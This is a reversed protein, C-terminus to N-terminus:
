VRGTVKYGTEVRGTVKCGTEVRGMVKCGTEVRGTVKCGTEMRGTVKCGTEEDDREVRDNVTELRFWQCLGSRVKVGVGFVLQRLRGM